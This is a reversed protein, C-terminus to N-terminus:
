IHAVLIAPILSFAMPKQLSLAGTTIVVIAVFATRYNKNGVIPADM